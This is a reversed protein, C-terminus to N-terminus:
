YQLPAILKREKKKKLSIHMYSFTYFMSQEFIIAFHKGMDCGLNFPSMINSTGWEQGM